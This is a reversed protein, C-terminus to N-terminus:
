KNLHEEIFKTIDAITRLKGNPITGDPFEFKFEDELHMVLDLEDLSDFLLDDRLNTGLSLEEPKVGQQECIAEIVTKNIEETNM